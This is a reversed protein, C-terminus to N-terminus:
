AGGDFDWDFPITYWVIRGVLAVDDADVTGFDIVQTQYTPDISDPKLELGNALPRVRKAVIGRDRIALAYPKGPRDVDMCPEILTYCGEPLIRNLSADPIRTFFSAPYQRALPEPMPLTAVQLAEREHSDQAAAPNRLAVQDLQSFDIVPMPVYGMEPAPRRVIRGENLAVPDIGLANAVPVVTDLSSGTVGNRCMSYITQKPMGIHEALRPVSRYEERILEYLREGLDDM